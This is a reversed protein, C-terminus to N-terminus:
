IRVMSINDFCYTTVNASQVAMFAFAGDSASIESTFRITHTEWETTGQVYHDVIPTFIGFNYTVNFNVPAMRNVRVDYQVIYDGPTLQIRAPINYYFLVEQVGVPGPSFPVCMVGNSISLPYDSAWNGTGSNFQDTVITQSAGNISNNSVPTGTQAYASSIFVDQDTGAPVDLTGSDLCEENPYWVCTGAVREDYNSVGDSDYDYLDTRHTSNIVVNGTGIFQQTQLAIEIQRDLYIEFWRIEITNNENLRIGEVSVDNSNQNRELFFSQTRGNNITIEALLRSDNLALIQRDPLTMTFDPIESNTSGDCGLIVLAYLAM